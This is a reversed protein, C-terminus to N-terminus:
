LILKVWGLCDWFDLDTQYCLDLNKPNNQFSFVGMKYGLFYPLHESNAERQTKSM